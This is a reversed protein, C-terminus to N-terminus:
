FAHAHGHREFTMRAGFPLWRPAEFTPGGGPQVIAAIDATGQQQNRSWARVTEKVAYQM